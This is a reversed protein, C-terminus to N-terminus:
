FTDENADGNSDNTKRHATHAMFLFPITNHTQSFILLFLFVIDDCHISLGKSLSLNTDSYMGGTSGMTRMDLSVTIIGQNQIDNKLYRLLHTKGTGRRGYIIQNEACSFLSFVAGVHVFSKVLYDDPKREARRPMTVLIEGLSKM